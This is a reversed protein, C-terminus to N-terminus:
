TFHISWDMSIDPGEYVVNVSNQPNQGGEGENVLKSCILVTSM